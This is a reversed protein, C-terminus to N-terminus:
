ECLFFSSARYSSVLSRLRRPYLVIAWFCENRRRRGLFGPLFVLFPLSALTWDTDNLRFVTDDRRILPDNLARGGVVPSVLTRVFPSLCFASGRDLSAADHAYVLRLGGLFCTPLLAAL